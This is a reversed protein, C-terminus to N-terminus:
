HKSYYARRAAILEKEHEKLTTRIVDEITKGLTANQDKELKYNDLTKVATDAQMRKMAALQEPTLEALRKRMLEGVNPLPESPAPASAYSAASKIAAENVQKIAAAYAKGTEGEFMLSMTTGEEETFYKQYVPLLMKVLDIASSREKVIRWVSDPVWPLSQKHAEYLEAQLHAQTEPLLLSEEMYTRLQAETIPPPSPVATPVTPSTQVPTTQARLSAAVFVSLMLAVHLRKRM